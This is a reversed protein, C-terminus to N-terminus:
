RWMEAEGSLRAMAGALGGITDAIRNYAIEFYSRDKEIGIFRRGEQVCAVGTSGSGMCNDLVLEGELSYTRVMYAMLDVPKQTPHLGVQSSHKPFDLITKPYKLGSLDDAVRRHILRTDSKNVTSRGQVHNRTGPVMQPFYRCAKRSFVLVSEHQKLPQRKANAFNSANHKNWVWECRYAKPQSAVLASTFPQNATLVVAADLRAVRWYERWLEDFAIVADWTAYTTGYPLDCLVLDVSGDPIEKMRELCDGLMLNLQTVNRPGGTTM